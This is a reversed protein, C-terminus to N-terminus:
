ASMVSGLCASSVQVRISLAAIRHSAQCGKGLIRWGRTILILWTLPFLLLMANVALKLGFSRPWVPIHSICASCMKRAFDSRCCIRACYSVSNEFPSVGPERQLVNRSAGPDRRRAVRGGCDMGVGRSWVSFGRRHAVLMLQWHQVVRAAKCLCSAFAIVLLAYLTELMLYPWYALYFGPADVRLADANPAALVAVLLRVDVAAHPTHACLGAPTTWLHMM